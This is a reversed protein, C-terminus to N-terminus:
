YGMAALRGLVCAAIYEQRAARKVLTGNEDSYHRALVEAEEPTAGNLILSQTYGLTAAKIMNYQLDQNM